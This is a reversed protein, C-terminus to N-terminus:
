GCSWRSWRSLKWSREVCGQPKADRKAAWPNLPDYIDLLLPKM